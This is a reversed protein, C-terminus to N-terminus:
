NFNAHSSTCKRLVRALGEGRFTELSDANTFAFTNDRYLVSLAEEYIKRCTRLITGDINLDTSPRPGAPIILATMREIVLKDAARINPAFLLERYVM